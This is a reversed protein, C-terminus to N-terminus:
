LTRWFVREVRHMTIAIGNGVLSRSDNPSGYNLCCCEKRLTKVRPDILATTEPSRETTKPDTGNRQERLVVLEQARPKSGPELVTPPIRGVLGNIM